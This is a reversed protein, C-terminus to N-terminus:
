CKSTHLLVNQMRISPFSRGWCVSPLYHHGERKRLDLLRERESLEERERDRERDRDREREWERDRPRERERDGLRERLGELTREREREREWEREWERERERLREGAPPAAEEGLLDFSCTFCNLVLLDDVGTEGSGAWLADREREGEM